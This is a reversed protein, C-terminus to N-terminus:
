DQHRRELLLFALATAAGYLLHGILSPLAAGAAAITWAFSGGLL